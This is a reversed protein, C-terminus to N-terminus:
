SCCRSLCVASAVVNLSLCADHSQCLVDRGEVCADHCAECCSERGKGVGQLAAANVALRKTLQVREGRALQVIQAHVARHDGAHCDFGGVAFLFELPSRRRGSGKPNAVSEEEEGLTDGWSVPGSRRFALRLDGGGGQSRTIFAAGEEEERLAGCEEGAQSGSRRWVSVRFAWGGGPSITLAGGEEEERLTACGM